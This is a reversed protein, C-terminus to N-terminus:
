GREEALREAAARAEDIDQRVTVRTILGDVWEYIMAGNEEVVATSGKLRGEQHFVSYVIGNGLDVVTETRIKFDEFTGTWEELLARVAPAGSVDLIGDDSEWVACPAYHSILADWDGRDAAEFLGTVVAVLDPTTSEEPM